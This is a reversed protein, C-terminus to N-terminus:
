VLEQLPQKFGTHRLQLLYKYSQTHEHALRPIFKFEDESIVSAKNKLFSQGNILSM